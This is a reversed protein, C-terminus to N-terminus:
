PIVVEYGDAVKATDGPTLYGFDFGQQEKLMGNVVAVYACREAQEETAYTRWGVKFGSRMSVFGEEPYSLPKWESMPVTLVFNGESDVAHYEMMM